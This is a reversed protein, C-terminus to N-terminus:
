RAAEAFCLVYGDPDVVDLERTGYETREPGRVIRAGGATFAAHLADLGEVDFYADWAEDASRRTRPEGRKLHLGIGDREVIAFVPPEGIQDCVAFGLADRYHAVARAVDHVVLKPHVASVRSPGDKM